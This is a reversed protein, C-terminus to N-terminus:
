ERLLHANLLNALYFAKSYGASIQIPSSNLRQSLACASLGLEVVIILIPWACVLEALSLYHPKGAEMKTVNCTCFAHCERDEHDLSPEM